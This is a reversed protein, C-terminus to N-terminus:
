LIVGQRNRLDGEGRAKRMLAMQSPVHALNQANSRRSCPPVQRPRMHNLLRRIDSRAAVILRVCQLEQARQERLVMHALLLFEELTEDKQSGNMGTWVELLCRWSRFARAALSSSAITLGHVWVAGVLQLVSGAAFVREAVALAKARSMCM